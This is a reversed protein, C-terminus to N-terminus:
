VKIKLYLAWDVILMIIMKKPVDDIKKKKIILNVHQEIDRICLTGFLHCRTISRIYTFM